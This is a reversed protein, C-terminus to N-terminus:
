AELRIRRRVPYLTERAGDAPLTPARRDRRAPLSETLGEHPTIEHVEGPGSPLLSLRARVPARPTGEDGPGTTGGEAPCLQNKDYGRRVIARDDLLPCSHCERQVALVPRPGEGLDDPLLVDGLRQRLRQAAAPQVMGIQEGPRAAAALRGAGADQGAREVALLARRGLRAADADRAARQGVVAGTRDVDDLDVRGAVTTDVIGTLQPLLREERRGAAAVLDVDDVLRVHDRRGAEVRQELEDLLRRVVHLEDEGGGLRFLHEARDPRTGM